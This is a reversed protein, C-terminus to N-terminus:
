GTQREGDYLRYTHESTLKQGTRQLVVKYLIFKKICSCLYGSFASFRFIHLRGFVTYGHVHERNSEGSRELVGGHGERSDGKPKFLTDDVSAMM